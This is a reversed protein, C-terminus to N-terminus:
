GQYLGKHNVLNLAGALQSAEDVEAKGSVAYESDEKEKRQQRLTRGLM